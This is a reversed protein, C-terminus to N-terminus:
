VGDYSCCVCQTSVWHRHKYPCLRNLSCTLLSFFLPSVRKLGSCRKLVGVLVSWCRWLWAGHHQDHIRWLRIGIMTSTEHCKHTLAALELRIQAEWVTCKILLPLIQLYSVCPPVYVVFIRCMMDWKGARHTFFFYTTILLFHNWWTWIHQRKWGAPATNGENQTMRHWGTNKAVFVNDVVINHDNM